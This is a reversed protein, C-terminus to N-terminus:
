LPYFKGIDALDAVWVCASLVLAVEDRRAKGIHLSASWFTKTREYTSVVNFYSESAANTSNSQNDAEMAGLAFLSGRILTNSSDEM